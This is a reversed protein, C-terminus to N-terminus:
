EIVPIGALLQRGHDRLDTMDSPQGFVHVHQEVGIVLVLALHPCAHQALQQSLCRVARPRDAAASSRGALSRAMRDAKPTGIFDDMERGSSSAAANNVAAAPACIFSGRLMCGDAGAAAGAGAAGSVAACAAGEEAAGLALASFSAAALSAAPPQSIRRSRPSQPRAQSVALPTNRDDTGSGAQISPM